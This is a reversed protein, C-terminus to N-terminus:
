AIGVSGGVQRGVEVDGEGVGLRYGQSTMAQQDGYDGAKLCVLGFSDRSPTVRTM